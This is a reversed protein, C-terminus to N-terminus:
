KPMQEFSARVLRFGISDQRVFPDKWDRYSSRISSEFSLWSGGRLVREFGSPPGVPDKQPGRPYEGYWDNCWESVNGLIDCLSFANPKKQGVGQSHKDSNGSYWAIEDLIGYREDTLNGRCAYEWEAETPLRYGNKEYDIQVKEGNVQYVPELGNKESLANCFLVADFWSVNEVPLDDGKFGSPNKGMVSQYLDQTMPFKDMLFSNTIAVEFVGTKPNGMNFKGAQVKVMRDMMNVDLPKELAQVDSSKPAVQSQLSSSALRIYSKATDQNGFPVSVAKLGDTTPPHARLISYLKGFDSKLWQDVSPLGKMEVNSPPGRAWESEKEGAKKEAELVKEELIVLHRPNNELQRYLTPLTYAILAAKAILEPVYKGKGMKKDALYATFLMLNLFRKLTRPNSGLVDLIRDGLGEFGAINRLQASLIGNKLETLDPAPLSFPFQIIKDLYEEEIDPLDRELDDGRREYLDRYRVRVGREIVNRDAGIVFVFNPLDLLVKLSELLQVAKEPLCRDLDDIFVVIKIGLKSTEKRLVEILNYYISQYDKVSVNSSQKAGFDNVESDTGVPGLHNPPKRGSPESQKGSHGGVVAEAIARMDGVRRSHGEMEEAIAVPIDEIGNVYSRLSGKDIDGVKVTKESPTEDTVRKLSGILTYFFPIILHEDAIFQWPNFWIPLIPRSTRPDELTQKIVHEELTQKIQLLMSTKGSGWSGYVGIVFSGRSSVGEIVEVLADCYVKYGILDHEAPDDGIPISEREQDSQCPHLPKVSAEGM